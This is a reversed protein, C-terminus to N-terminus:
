VVSALRSLKGTSLSLSAKGVLQGVSHQAGYAVQLILTCTVTM